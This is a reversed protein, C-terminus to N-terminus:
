RAPENEILGGTPAGKATGLISQGGNVGLAQASVAVYSGAGAADTRHFERRCDTRRDRGYHLVAVRWV